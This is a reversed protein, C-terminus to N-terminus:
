TEKERFRDSNEEKKESGEFVCLCIKEERLDHDNYPCNLGYLNGEWVPKEISCNYLLLGAHSIFIILWGSFSFSDAKLANLSFILM